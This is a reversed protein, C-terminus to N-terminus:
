LSSPTLSLHDPPQLTQNPLVRPIPNSLIAQLEISMSHLAICRFEVNFFTEELLKSLKCVDNWVYLLGQVVKPYFIVVIKSRPHPRTLVQHLNLQQLYFRRFRAIHAARHRSFDRSHLSAVATHGVVMRRFCTGSPYEDMFAATHPFIYFPGSRPPKWGIPLFDTWHLHQFHVQRGGASLLDFSEMAHYVSAM